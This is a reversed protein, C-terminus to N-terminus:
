AADDGRVLHLRVSSRRICCGPVMLSLDQREHSTNAIHISEIVPLTQLHTIKLMLSAAVEAPPM